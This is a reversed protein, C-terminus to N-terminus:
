PVMGVCNVKIEFREFVSADPDDRYRAVGDCGAYARADDESYCIVDITVPEGHSSGRAITHSAADDFRCFIAPNKPWMRLDHVHYECAMTDSWQLHMGGFLKREM